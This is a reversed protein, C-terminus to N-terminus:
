GVSLRWVSRGHTAAYLKGSRHSYTLGYVAVPPLGPTALWSDGGNPRTVVGFDTSVFLAKSSPVYVIDTIPQDGLDLSLNRVTGRNTNPNWTVDFVHGGPSYASYGSYSVFVHYPNAPDIAIGSVFRQPLGLRRDLRRYTVAAPNTADANSSVFLRGFRTAAWLTSSNSRAREIAVVYNDPVAGRQGWAAGSLDGRAGGLPVWDGCPRPRNGYDGTLENCYRDLFARRGGNDTTRWIHQLGDFVTGAVKPDATLPVYFAASEGSALLPDSIFDWGTPSGGDFSVDHNPSFYSHYRIRPTDANFGSQGGDGGVTEAWNRRTDIEWTGNDQTGGQLTHGNRAVSVSQYQLTALGDNISANKTPIASLFQQCDRLQAGSLGRRVCQGSRDVFPGRQRVVGGDSATFFVQGRTHPVFVLAHHDPHLGNTRRRADNTMDTFHRGGDGSRVVARGNSNGPGGFVALEGYNMSGALFVQKPRGKPSAVVMDYSCQTHCFNYSGYGPSGPTPNSLLTWRPRPRSGDDTRLLAATDQHFYTADGLYIRTIGNRLPALAFEVRNSLSTALNGPSQITYIQKWSGSGVRRFLGYDFMSAYM